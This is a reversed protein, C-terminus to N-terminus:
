EEFISSIKEYIGCEEAFFYYVEIGREM